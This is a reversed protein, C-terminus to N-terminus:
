LGFEYGYYLDISTNGANKLIILAEDVKGTFQPFNSMPPAGAAYPQYKGVSFNATTNPTDGDLTLEDIVTAAGLLVSIGSQAPGATVSLHTLRVRQGTPPTLTLITGTAGTSITGGSAARTIFDGGAEVITNHKDSM